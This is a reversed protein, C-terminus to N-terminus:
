PPSLKRPRRTRKWNLKTAEPIADKVTTAKALDKRLTALDDEQKARIQNQDQQLKVLLENTQKLESYAELLKAEM